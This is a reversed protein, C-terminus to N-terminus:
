VTLENESKMELTSRLLKQLIAAFVSIMLSGFSIAFGILLLSPHLANLFFLMMVGLVYISCITGGCNRIKKLSTIALNSFANETDVLYLLKLGQYLAIYFPFAAINAGILVPFRLYSHEPNGIAAERSWVPLVYACFVFVMIGIIFIAGKLFATTGRNM